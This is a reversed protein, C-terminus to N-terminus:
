NDICLFSSWKTENNEVALLVLAAGCLGNLFSYKNLELVENNKYTKPFFIPENFKLLKSINIILLDKWYDIKFSILDDNQVKNIQHLLYLIGSIGHCFGIDFYDNKPFYNLHSSSLEKSISLELLQRSYNILEPEKLIDGAYSFAYSVPLDGVCYGLRCNILIEKKNTLSYRDPYFSTGKVENEALTYTKIIGFILKDIYNNKFNLEKLKVLFVLISCIGHAMGLDVFEHDKKFSVKDVWFIQKNKVKKSNWLSNLLKNVLDTIRQQKIRDEKLFFQIKGISGYFIEYFEREIDRQISDILNDEIENIVDDINDIIECYKLYDLTCFVSEFGDISGSTFDHDNFVLILKNLLYNCKKRFKEDKTVKFRTAFYMLVGLDDNIVPSSM